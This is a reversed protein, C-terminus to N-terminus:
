RPGPPRVREMMLADRWNGDPAREALRMVGVRRFGAKEYCRVAAANDVAPDITVRHHGRDDLLHDVLTVVAETGLGRGHLPPDLFLDISAHRYDPETEENYQILGAPEGDVVITFRTAEPEDTLPFGDAMSGWWAAVEPKVHIARLRAADAEALPRLVVRDGRLEETV